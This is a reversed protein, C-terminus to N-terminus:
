EVPLYESKYEYEAWHFCCWVLPSSLHSTEGLISHQPSHRQSLLKRSLCHWKKKTKKKKRWNTCCYYWKPLICPVMLCLLGNLLIFYLPPTSCFNENSGFNCAPLLFASLFVLYSLQFSFFVIYTKSQWKDHVMQRVWCLWDRPLSQIHINSIAESNKRSQPRAELM